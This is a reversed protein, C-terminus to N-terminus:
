LIRPGLKSLFQVWNGIWARLFVVFAAGEHPKGLSCSEISAQIRAASMNLLYADERYGRRGVSHILSTAHASIYSSVMVRHRLAACVWSLTNHPQLACGILPMISRYRIVYLATAGTTRATVQHAINWTNSGNGVTIGYAPCAHCRRASWHCQTPYSTKIMTRHGSRSLTRLNSLLRSLAVSRSMRRNKITPIM